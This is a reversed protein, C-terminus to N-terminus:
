NSVAHETCTEEPSEGCPVPTCTILGSACEQECSNDKCKSFDYAKVYFEKYISLGNPPCDDPNSCDRSFCSEVSPNCKAEVLYDYDKTFYYKYFNSLIPIILAVLVVFAIIWGKLSLNYTNM